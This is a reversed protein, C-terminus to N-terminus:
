PWDRSPVLFSGGTLQSLWWYEPAAAPDGEMPFLIVNIASKAPLSRTAERFLRLREPGTVTAQTPASAGQTPLSDTLLYVNDPQPKLERIVEMAAHLSTGGEPSSQRLLEVAEDLREREVPLWGRTEPLVPKAETNFAYVQFRADESLQATLWDVTAVTRRWKPARMREALPLNRTRLVNVLTDDLMSASRDVLILVHRGGVRLGTLYQREGEGPVSRVKRGRPKPAPGGSALRQRAQELERVQQELAALGGDRKAAERKAAELESRAAAVARALEASRPQPNSKPAAQLQELAQRTRALDASAGALQATLEVRQAPLNGLAEERLTSARATIVVFLLVIAGFGNSLTDLFALAAPAADRKRRVM